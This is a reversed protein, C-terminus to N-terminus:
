SEMSGYYVLHVDHQESCTSSDQLSHLPVLYAERVGKIEKLVHVLALEAYSSASFRRIAVRLKKRRRSLISLLLVYLKTLVVLQLSPDFVLSGPLIAPSKGAGFVGSIAIGTGECLLLVVTWYM